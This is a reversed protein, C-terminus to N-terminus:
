RLTRLFGAVLWIKIGLRQEGSRETQAVLGVVWGRGVGAFAGM